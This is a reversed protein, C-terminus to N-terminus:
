GEEAAFPRTPPEEGEAAEALLQEVRAEVQTLQTRCRRALKVGREFLKLAEELGVSDDELKTVVEELQALADEFTEKSM